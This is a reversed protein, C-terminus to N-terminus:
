LAGREAGFKTQIGFVLKIKFGFAQRQDEAMCSIKDILPQSRRKRVIVALLGGHAAMRHKDGLVGGRGTTTTAQGLPM